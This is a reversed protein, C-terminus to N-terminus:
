KPPLGTLIRQVDDDTLDYNFYTKYFTKTEKAIDIDPFKDPNLLKAAWQIQLAEEAGYRDWAFAGDPNLYVKKSKIASINAWEPDTLVKNWDKVSAGIIIVDPNWKLVQETNVKLGNGSLEKAANIGGAVEIWSNIITNNGDVTLPSLAMIHLVKPKKEEPIKSTVDTLMKLKSDLYSNFSVARKQAEEGLMSATFKYLEKLEDYNTFTKFEVVPIGAETITKASKDGQSVFVLDPKTKLLEEIKVGNADFTQVANNMAPVVKFLWPRSQPTHITAVIRDGAGLMAVVENHAQWSDGLRKPDVPIEVKNGMMDTITQKAPTQVQVSSKNGCGVLIMSILLLLVMVAMIGNHKKM